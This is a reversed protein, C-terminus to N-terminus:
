FKFFRHVACPERRVAFSFEAASLRLGKTRGVQGALSALGEAFPEGRAAIAPKLGM